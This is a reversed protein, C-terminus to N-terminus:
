NGVGLSVVTVSRHGTVIVFLGGTLTWMETGGGRLCSWDGGRCM